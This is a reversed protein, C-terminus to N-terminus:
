DIELWEAPYGMLWLAFAPNIIGSKPPSQERAYIKRPLTDERKREGAQKAMGPTDKWDRAIPTPLWYGSDKADIAQVLPPLRYLMGNCMMGSKPLPESYELSPKEKMWLSSPAHTKWSQSDPGYSALSECPIQGCGDKTMLEVGRASSAQLSARCAERLSMLVALRMSSNTQTSASAIALTSGKPTPQADLAGFLNMTMQTQNATM